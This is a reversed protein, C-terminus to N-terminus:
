ISQICILQLTFQTPVTCLADIDAPWDLLGLLIVAPEGAGESVGLVQECDGAEESVWGVLSGWSLLVVAAPRGYLVSLYEGCCTVNLM